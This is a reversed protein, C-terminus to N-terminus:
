PIQQHPCVPLPPPRETDETSDRLTDASPPLRAFINPSLGGTESHESGRRSSADNNKSSSSSSNQAQCAVPLVEPSSVKYKEQVPEGEQPIVEDRILEEEQKIEGRQVIEEDDKIETVQVTEGGEEEQTEPKPNGIQLNAEEKKEEHAAETPSPYVWCMPQETEKKAKRERRKESTQSRKEVAKAVFARLAEDEKKKKKKAAVIETANAAAEETSVSPAASATTNVDSNVLVSANEGRREETVKPRDLLSGKKLASNFEM